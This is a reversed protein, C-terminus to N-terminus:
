IGEMMKEIIPRGSSLLSALSTGFKAQLRIQQYFDAGYYKKQLEIIKELVPDLVSIYEKKFASM